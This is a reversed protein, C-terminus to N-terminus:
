ERCSRRKSLNRGISFGIVVFLVPQLLPYLNGFMANLQETHDLYLSLAGFTVEAALGGWERLFEKM